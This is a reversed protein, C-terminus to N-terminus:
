MEGQRMGMKIKKQRRGNRDGEKEWGGRMRETYEKGITCVCVRAGACLRVCM